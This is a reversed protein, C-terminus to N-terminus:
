VDSIGGVGGAAVGGCASTLAELSARGHRRTGEAGCDEGSPAIGNDMGGNTFRSPAIGGDGSDGRAPTAELQGGTRASSASARFEPQVARRLKAATNAATSSAPAAPAPMPIATPDLEGFVPAEELAVVSGVLREGMMLPDCAGSEDELESPAIAFASVGATTSILVVIAEDLPM